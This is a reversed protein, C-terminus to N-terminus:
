VLDSNALQFYFNREPSMDAGTDVDRACPSGISASVVQVKKARILTSIKGLLRSHQNLLEEPIEQSAFSFWFARSPQMSKTEEKM